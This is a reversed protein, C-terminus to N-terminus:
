DGPLGELDLDFDRYRGRSMEESTERLTSTLDSTRFLFQALLHDPHRTVTRRISRHHDTPGPSIGSIPLIIALQCLDFSGRLSEKFM